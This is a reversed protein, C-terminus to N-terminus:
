QEANSSGTRGFQAKLNQILAYSGEVLTPDLM